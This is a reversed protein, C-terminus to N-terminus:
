KEGRQPAPTATAGPRAGGADPKVYPEKPLDAKYGMVNLMTVAYRRGFERLGDSTFHLHDPNCPLGASDPGVADAEVHPEAITL